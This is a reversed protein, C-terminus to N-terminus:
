SLREARELARQLDEPLPSRVEVRRGTLPHEFALRTAHLFQRELGLLGASGYEPDGCVPHGIAQLHV